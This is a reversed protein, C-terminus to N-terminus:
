KTGRGRGIVLVLGLLSQVLYLISSVGHWTAFRSRLVSEMVERPLADAKLQALLPQIGFLGVVTLLLMLVLLWFNRRRLAASGIRLVVFLLLYTACALGVWGILEFLRGALFGALQRDSSLALFLTPAVLYGIAWLGGVWLTLAVDYLADALRQM